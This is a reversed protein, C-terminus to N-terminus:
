YFSVPLSIFQHSLNELTTGGPVESKINVPCEKSTKKCCTTKGKQLTSANLVLLSAILIAVILSFSIWNKKLM